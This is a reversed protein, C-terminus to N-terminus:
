TSSKSIKMRLMLWISGLMIAMFVQPVSQMPSPKAHINCGCGSSSGTTGTAAIGFFEDSTVVDETIGVSIMEGDSQEAIANVSDDGTGFDITEIGNTGFTTDVSGDSNFQVLDFAENEVTDPDVPDGGAVITSDDEEVLLTTFQDDNDASLDYTVVGDDGFSTDPSGDNNLAVLAADLDSDGDSQVAGAVIIQDDATVTVDNGLSSTGAEVLLIGDVSFSTDLTGTLNAFSPQSWGVVVSIFLVFIGM